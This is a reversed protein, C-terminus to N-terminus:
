KFNIDNLYTSLTEVKEKLITLEKYDAQVEGDKNEPCNVLEEIHWLIEDIGKGAQKMDYKKYTKM